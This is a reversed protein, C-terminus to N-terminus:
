KTNSIEENITLANYVEHFPGQSNKDSYEWHTIYGPVYYIGLLYKHSPGIMKKLSPSLLIEWGM